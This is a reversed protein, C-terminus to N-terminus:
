RESEIARIAAPLGEKVTPYQLKWGLAAKARENKARVSCTMSEAWLEGAQAAGEEVSISAPIPKGLVQCVHALWEKQRIPADDVLNMLQTKPREDPSPAYGHQEAALLYAEAMDAPHVFSMFNDGSGVIRAQGAHIAPLLNEKFWSGNGYVWGPVMFTTRLRLSEALHALPQRAPGIFRDYGCPEFPTDEDVWEEGHDGYSLVGFTLIVGRLKGEHAARILNSCADTHSKLLDPIQTPSPQQGRKGPLTCGIAIDLREIAREWPGSTLLNGIIPECGLAELVKGRVRDRALGYVEHGRARFAKILHGGIFGTGGAIFIKLPVAMVSPEPHELRFCAFRMEM